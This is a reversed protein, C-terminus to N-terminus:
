SSQGNTEREFKREGNFFRFNAFPGILRQGRGMTNGLRDKTMAAQWSPLAPEKGALGHRRPREMGGQAVKRWWAAAVALSEKRRAGAIRRKTTAARTARAAGREADNEMMEAHAAIL